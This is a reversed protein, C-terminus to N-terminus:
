LITILVPTFKCFFGNLSIGLRVKLDTILLDDGKRAYRNIQEFAAKTITNGQVVIAKQGPIRITFELVIFKFDLNKDEFFVRVVADKLNNKSMRLIPDKNFNLSTLQLPINKIKYVFVEVKKTKNKLVIQVSVNLETGAGPNIEFTNKSTSKLGLGSVSFSLSNPVEISFKNSLGRYVVRCDQNVIWESTHKIVSLTDKQAFSFFSIFLFFSNLIRPM